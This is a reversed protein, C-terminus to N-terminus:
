LFFIYAHIDGYEVHACLQKIFFTAESFFLYFYMTLLSIKTSSFEIMKVYIVYFSIDFICKLYLVALFFAM